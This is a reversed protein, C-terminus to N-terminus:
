DKIFKIRMEFEGQIGLEQAFKEIVRKFELQGEHIPVTNDDNETVAYSEHLIMHGESEDWILKHGTM